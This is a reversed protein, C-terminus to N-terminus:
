GKEKWMHCFGHPNLGAAGWMPCNLQGEFRLSETAHGCNKCCGITEGNWDGLIGVKPFDDLERLAVILCDACMENQSLSLLHKKFKGADMLQGEFVM